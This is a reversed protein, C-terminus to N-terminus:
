LLATDSREVRVQPLNLDLRIACLL